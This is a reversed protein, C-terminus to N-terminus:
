LTISQHCPYSKKQLIQVSQIQTQSAAHWIEIAYLIYPHFLTFYLSKLIHYPLFKKLKFLIGNCRALKTNIHNIHSDFRLNEDIIVGLFKTKNTRAILQNCFPIDPIEINKRYNYVMFKTKDINLAIKNVNLWSKVKFLEM